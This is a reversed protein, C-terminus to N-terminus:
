ASFYGPSQTYMLTEVWSIVSAGAGYGIYIGPIDRHFLAANNEDSKIRRHLCFNINDTRSSGKDLTRQLNQIVFGAACISRFPAM